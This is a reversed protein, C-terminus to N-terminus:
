RAGSSKEISKIQVIEIRKLMRLVRGKRDLWRFYIAARYGAPALLSDIRQTFVFGGRRVIVGTVLAPYEGLLERLEEPDLRDSLSTSGVLDCFMVTLQRREAGGDLRLGARERRAGDGSVAAQVAPEAKLAAIADLLRRREGIPVVGLERLDEATLSPLLDASVNNRRFAPEYRELGVSRLWEAVDM